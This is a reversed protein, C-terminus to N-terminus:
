TDLKEVPFNSTFQTKARMHKRLIWHGPVLDIHGRRRLKQGQRKARYFVRLLKGGFGDPVGHERRIMAMERQMNRTVRLDASQGHEHYRYNVVFENLHGIRCRERGLRLIFDYDCCNLFEKHRYYGIRDHVARRIFLAQHNVYLIGSFRLVDYDYLAERRRYIERGQGDVYVIDGFVGDWDAHEALARGVKALVGPRLCDDANLITVIEGTARQSGKNMAHYHGEDKESVWQLHPYQSLIDLTGDTSGGDIVLHELRPYHQAVVSEITERLTYGSNFTPTVVSISPLEIM